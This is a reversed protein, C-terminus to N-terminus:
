NPEVALFVNTVSDQSSIWKNNTLQNTVTAQIESTFSNNPNRGLYQGLSYTTGKLSYRWASNSIETVKYNGLPLNVITKSNAGNIVEYTTSLVTGTCATDTKAFREVKFTFFQKPDATGGTVAKTITLQGKIVNVTYVDKIPIEGIASGGNASSASGSSNPTYTVKYYLPTTDSPTLAAIVAPDAGDAPNTCNEDYYWNASITGTQGKGFWMESDPNNFAAVDVTMNAPLTGVAEGLFITKSQNAQPLYIPVNVTPQNFPKQVEDGDEDSFSVYSDERVNTPIDNGGFFAPKAMVHITNTWHENAVPITEDDGWVVKWVGDGDDYSVVGGNDLTVTSSTDTIPNNDDDLVVFRPDVTDQVTAGTVPANNSVRQYLEDPTLINTENKTWQITTQTTDGTRKSYVRTYTGGAANTYYTKTLDPAATTNTVQTYVDKTGAKQCFNEDGIKSFVDPTYGSYVYENGEYYCYYNGNGDQWRTYEDFWYEGQGVHHVPVYSGDSLLVYYSNAANVDDYDVTSYNDVVTKYYLKKSSTFHIPSGTLGSSTYWEYTTGPITTTVTTKTVEQTGEEDLYYTGDPLDSYPKECQEFTDGMQVVSASLDLQYTRTGTGTASNFDGTYRATKGVRVADAGTPMQNTFIISATQATGEKLPAPIEAQKGNGRDTTGGSFTRWTTDYDESGLETVKVNKGAFRDLTPIVDPDSYSFVAKQGSRLAFEGNEDTTGARVYTGGSINYIKYNQNDLATYAEDGNVGSDYYAQFQYNGDEGAAPPGVLQKGVEFASSQPLNCSMQFNSYVAGRELYYIALSHTQGDQPIGIDPITHVVTNNANRTTATGAKFDIEGTKSQHIGGIDLLLKGDVFIWVDDDGSFSFKVAEGAATGDVTGNAPLLFSLNMNMGFSYASAENSSPNGAGTYFPCFQAHNTDIDQREQLDLTNHEANYKVRQRVSDFSYVYNGRADLTRTLPFNVNTHTQRYVDNAANEPGFLDAAVYQYSSTSAWQLNGNVDLNDQVIGPYIANTTYNSWNGFYPYIGTKDFNLARVEKTTTADLAAAAENTAKNILMTSVGNVPTTGRNYKYLNTSVYYINPDVPAASALLTVGRDKETGTDAMATNFTCSVAMMIALVLSIARKQIIKRINM